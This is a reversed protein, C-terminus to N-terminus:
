KQLSEIWLVLDEKLYRIGGSPLQIWAPGINNKRWRYLINKGCALIKSVENVTILTKSASM